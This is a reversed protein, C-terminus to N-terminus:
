FSRARLPVSLGFTLSFRNQNLPIPIAGSKMSGYKFAIYDLGMFLNVLSSHLNFAAGVVGFSSNIFSETVSMSFWRAPRYSVAAMIKNSMYSDYKKGYYLLGLGLRDNLMNYEFGLNLNANLANKAAKPTTANIIINEPKEFDVKGEAFNYGKYAYSLNDVTACFSNAATWITYGLDTVSASINIQRDLLQWDIGADVAVGVSGLNGSGFNSSYDKLYSTMDDLTVEGQLRSFDYGQVNANLSGSMEARYEDENMTLNLKDINVSAHALGLLAKVRFGVTFADRVPFTYGGGVEIFDNHDVGLGSIDYSGSSMTKLVKFFDKPVNVTTESRLNINFSWFGKSTYNGIGFLRENVNMDIVNMDPMNKLFDDASVSNHMFTVLGNNETNPFFINDAQLYNTGADVSFNLAPINFYGRTPTLAPNLEYRQASGPMFYASHLQASSNAVAALSFLAASITIKISTKM